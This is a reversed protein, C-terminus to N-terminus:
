GHVEKYRQVRAEDTLGPCTYCYQGKGACYNLCCKSRLMIKIDPDDPAQFVPFEATLPNIVCSFCSGDAGVTLQAYDAWFAQLREGELTRTWEKKWYALLYSLTAWLTTEQIGTLAIIHGFLPIANETYLHTAYRRIKEHRDLAAGTLEPHELVKLHFRLSGGGSLELKLNGPSINLATGLHLYAYVAGALLACYRKVFLSGTVVDRTSGVVGSFKELLRAVDERSSVDYYDTDSPLAGTRIHFKEHLNLDLPMMLM